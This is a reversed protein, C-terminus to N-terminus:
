SEEMEIPLMAAEFDLRSVGAADMIALCRAVDRVNFNDYLRHVTELIGVEAIFGRVSSVFVPNDANIRDPSLLDALTVRELNM